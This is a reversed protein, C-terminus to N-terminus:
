SQMEHLTKQLKSTSNIVLCDIPLFTNDAKKLDTETCDQVTKCSTASKWSIEKWFETYM